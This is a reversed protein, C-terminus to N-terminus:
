SLSACPSLLCSVAPSSPPSTSFDRLTIIPVSIHHQHSQQRQNEEEFHDAQLNLRVCGSSGSCPPPLVKGTMRYVALWGRETTMWGDELPPFRRESRQRSLLPSSARSSARNNVSRQGPHQFDRGGVGEESIVHVGCSIPARSICVAGLGGGGVGLAARSHARVTSYSFYKDG